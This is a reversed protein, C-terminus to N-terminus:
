RAPLSGERQPHPQGLEIEVALEGAVQEADVLEPVMLEDCRVHLPVCRLDALQQRQDAPHALRPDLRDLPVARFAGRARLETCEGASAARSSTARVITASSREHRSASAAITSRRQSSTPAANRAWAASVSSKAAINSAAGCAAGTLSAFTAFRTCPIM